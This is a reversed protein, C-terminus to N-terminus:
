TKSFSLRLILNGRMESGRLSLLIYDFQEWKTKHEAMDSQTNQWASKLTGTQPYIFNDCNQWVSRLWVSLRGYPHGEDNKMGHIKWTVEM